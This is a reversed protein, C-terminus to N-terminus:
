SLMYKCDSISTPYAWLVRQLDRNSLGFKIAMAFINIMEEANHALLHAGLIRGTEEEIIIKYLSRTQGIRRSSPWSDMSGRNIRFRVTTAAAEEETMGVAALPPIAFVVTPIADYNAELKNGHLINEAAVEAEMDATTALPFPTGSADGIAYVIPNSKSQLYGNVTVGDKTHSVDGQELDLSELDPVRGAGHVVMEARYTEQCEDSGRVILEGGNREIGCVPFGTVIGIGATRSLETLQEVVEADFRKLIRESRQLVIAKTGVAQAVHAFEMSIYGGGVFLIRKPLRELELFQDSTTLLEEGPIGLRAPRAGTAIVVAGAEITATEGIRVLSPSVFRATGHYIEIGAKSFTSETREPVPDTFASKAKMLDAWDVRAPTQIGIGTMQSSMRAIRAAEVLYKKPQCGRMACTGGYPRSDVITVKRGAKRCKMALTYGATGTGIVLIDTTTQM